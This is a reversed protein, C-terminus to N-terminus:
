TAYAVYFHVSTALPGGRREGSVGVLRKLFDSFSVPGPPVGASGPGNRAITAKAQPSFSGCSGQGMDDEERGSRTADTCNSLAGASLSAFKRLISANAVCAARCPTRSTTNGSHQM